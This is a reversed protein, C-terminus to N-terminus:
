RQAPELSQPTRENVTDDHREEEGFLVENASTTLWDVVQEYAARVPAMRGQGRGYEWVTQGALHAEAVAVRNPVPAAVMGPYSEQLLRYNYRQATLREDYMTPLVILQQPQGIERVLHLTAAVGDLALAECRVPAVVTEAVRIVVEQLYGSPHTDIVLYDYGQALANLCNMLDGLPRGRLEDDAKRTWGDGPLLSLGPRGTERVVERALAGLVLHRYVGPEPALGLVIADQGLLDFDVLLVRADRLALGHATSTAATTKGVGGKDSVVAIM